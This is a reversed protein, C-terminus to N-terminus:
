IREENGTIGYIYNKTRFSPGSVPLFYFLIDLRVDSYFVVLYSFEGISNYDATHQIRSPNCAWLGVLGPRSTWYMKM